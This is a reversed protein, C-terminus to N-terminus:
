ECKGLAAEGFSFLNCSGRMDLLLMSWKSSEFNAPRKMHTRRMGATMGDWGM